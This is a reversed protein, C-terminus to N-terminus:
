LDMDTQASSACVGRVSDRRKGASGVNIEKRKKHAAPACEVRLTGIGALAVFM